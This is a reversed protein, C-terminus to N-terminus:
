AETEGFHRAFHDRASEAEHGTLRLVDQTVKDLEGAAIAAYSTVWGEVAWEPAGSAARSARAEAPTEPEYAIKRGSARSLEAALEAMSYARPGTLEYAQGARDPELLLAVIADAVDDRAVPAVRGEGAPGRIVGDQVMLPVFDLYLSQRSFAFGLGSGRILEETHFHDRAFTFTADPAAGLFSLYVLREAGASVAADVATRHQEVRDPAEHASVLLLVSVGELAGRIGAADEYGGV